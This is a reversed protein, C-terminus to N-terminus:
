TPHEILLRVTATVTRGNRTTAVVGLRARVLVDPLRATGIGDPLHLYVGGDGVTFEDPAVIAPDIRSWAESPPSATLFTAHVRIPDAVAGSAYPNSAVVQEREKTSRLV